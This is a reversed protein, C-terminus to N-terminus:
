AKTSWSQYEPVRDAPFEHSEAQTWKDAAEPKGVQTAQDMKEVQVQDMEEMKDRNEVQDKKEGKDVQGQWVHVGDEQGGDELRVLWEPRKRTQCWGGSTTGPRAARSMNRRAM